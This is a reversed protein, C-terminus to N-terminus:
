CIGRCFPFGALSGIFDVGVPVCKHLGLAAPLILFNPFRCVITRSIVLRGKDSRELKFKPPPFNGM